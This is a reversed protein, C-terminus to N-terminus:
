NIKSLLNFIMIKVDKIPVGSIRNETSLLVIGHVSSFLARAFLAREHSEMDPYIQVLPRYIYSMLRELSARYWDPVDETDELEVDFLAKWAKYNETAFKLYANSMEILQDNPALTDQGQMAAAVEAGLHKFTRANVELILAHMDPFITYIAGLACGAEKSLDRAKVHALGKEQVIREAIDLLKERLAAKREQVKSAM